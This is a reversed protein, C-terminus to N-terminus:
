TFMHEELIEILVPLMLLTATTFLEGSELYLNKSWRGNLVGRCLATPTPLLARVDAKYRRWQEGFRKSLVREEHLVTAGYFLMFLPLIVIWNLGDNLVFLVGVTVLFSGLYLPHRVIAYPGTTFLRGVNFHGRAWLRLLLGSLIFGLGLIAWGCPSEFPNLEHPKRNTLIDEVILVPFAIKLPVARFKRAINLVRDLRGHSGSGADTSTSGKLSSILWMALRGDIDTFFVLSGPLLRNYM